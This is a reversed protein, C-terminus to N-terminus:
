EALLQDAAARFTEYDRDGEWRYRVQGKKDIMVSVPVEEIHGYSEQLAPTSLVQRYTLGHQACYSRVGALGKSEAVAAGVIVLGGDKNETHLRQLDPTEMRCPGCWTGWFNLLVIHGRLESLKIPHGETDQLDFNPAPDARTPNIAKIDAFDPALPYKSANSAWWAKWATLSRTKASPGDKLKYISGQGTIRHLLAVAYRVVFDDKDDLARVLLPVSREDALPTVQLVETDSSKASALKPASRAGSSRNASRPTALQSMAAQRIWTDGDQLATLLLRMGRQPDVVHLTEVARQRVV